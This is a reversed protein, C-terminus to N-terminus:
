AREFLVVSSWCEFLKGFYFLHVQGFSRNALFHSRLTKRFVSGVRKKAAAIQNIGGRM